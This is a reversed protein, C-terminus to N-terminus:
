RILRLFGYLTVGNALNNRFEKSAKDLTIEHINIRRKLVKEYKATNVEKKKDTIVAIDIDSKGTDEGRAYSGFLVIAERLYKGALDEIIGCNLISYLNSARKLAVFEKNDVNALYNDTM